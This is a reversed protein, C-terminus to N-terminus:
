LMWEWTLCQRMGAKGPSLLKLCAKAQAYKDLELPCNAWHHVQCIIFPLVFVVTGDFDPQKALLEAAGLLM